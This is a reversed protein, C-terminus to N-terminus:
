SQPLPESRLEPAKKPGPDKKKSRSNLIRPQIPAGYVRNQTGAHPAFSSAKPHVTDHDAPTACRAAPAFSGISFAAALVALAGSMAVRM